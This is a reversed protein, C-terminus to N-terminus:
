LVAPQERRRFDYAFAALAALHLVGERLAFSPLRDGDIVDYLLFGGTMLVWPTVAGTFILMPGLALYYWPYHPTLLLLFLTVLLAYGTIASVTTFQRRFGIQLAAACLITLAMLAYLQGGYPITGVMSQLMAFYRFGGGSSLGEEAVYGGLFGFVKWGASLFPLYLLACVALLLAPLKWDWPKWFVPFLLLATPKVLVTVAAAAGATLTRGRLYIVLCSLMLGLLAADVHGNGAIEWVPLPHWAYAAITTVPLALHRLVAIMAAIALAEFALLGLKMGIVSDSVATIARFILQAAPQYITPAYDARNIHPYIATDRLHALEPAAPVYLYPNIGARQVRGDWVYRYMDSSLYPEELLLPIRMLAAAGLVILLGHSAQTRKALAAGAFALAAWAVILGYWAIGGYVRHVTPGVVSALVIAAALVTLKFVTSTTTAPKKM